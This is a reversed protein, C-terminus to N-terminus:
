PADGAASRTTCAGIPTACRTEPTLWPVANEDSFRSWGHRGIAVIIGDLDTLYAVGEMADLLEDATVQVRRSRDADLGAGHLWRPLGTPQARAADEDIM